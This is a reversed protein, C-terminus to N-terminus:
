QALWQVADIVVYGDTGANSVTVSATAGANFSYTGLDQFSDHSGKQRQNLVVTSDGGRHSVVVKINSARNNNPPYAIRVSYNGGEELSTSFTATADGKEENNDHRYGFNVFPGNSSSPKWNGKMEAKEDDVVIGKIDKILKGKGAAIPGDYELIQGGKVLQERLERYPVEQVPIGKDIAISAATAASQGLIMFVPEMRISGFAIHTSSVCVPAFLNECQDKKPVLSGYAIEYPGRTSVGIDGENQVYGEPTIYRQVNHSDITYSGMGVSEPTPTVKRLENETMVFHGMMRRAERIYLQPSWNGSDTYEDKPLGWEQMAERVEAPVRPDNAIFYLWGKQYTEHEKIIERRREYSADPYDYNFGINDTSFPGHNNTDTKHNPIPDFKGFTDRWGADFIRLLLEYQDPDYGEPKTFSIRNEPHDTLCMRFCYAQVRHDAEGKVGPDETSIRALVGSSRDGPIKYPSIPEAVAGFHHRHHLVGTQVGNWNEDFESNAERGVHYDVGATAILDGEYTTDLFMKGPYRKGSLTTISVIRGEKMEVGNERDLWEDRVVDLDYESVYEEFVAKAISPEFIWMTKQDGDIAPTGQGKGGYEDKAEWKWNEPKQYQKWVRHYFDRALGGIVAKNGTDTWGLGGSSLGGLHKDPSVIIVSKGMETAQVAAVVAASTGGYIVIDHSEEDAYGGWPLGVLCLAPFSRLMFNM